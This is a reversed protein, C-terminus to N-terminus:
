VSSSTSNETKGSKWAFALYMVTSAAITEPARQTILLLNEALRKQSIQRRSPTVANLPWPSISRIRSLCGSLSASRSFLTRTTTPAAAEVSSTSCNSCRNSRATSSAYPM